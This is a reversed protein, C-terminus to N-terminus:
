FFCFLFWGVMAVAELELTQDGSAVADQVNRNKTILGFRAPLWSGIFGTGGTAVVESGEPCPKPGGQRNLVSVVTNECRWIPIMSTASHFVCCLSLDYSLSVVDQFMSCFAHVDFTGGELFLLQIMWNCRSVASLGLKIYCDLNYSWRGFGRNIHNKKTPPYNTGM